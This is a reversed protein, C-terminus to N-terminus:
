QREYEGLKPYNFTTHVRREQYGGAKLFLTKERLAAHPHDAAFQSRWRLTSQDIIEFRLVHNDQPPAGLEKRHTVTVLVARPTGTDEKRACGGYTIEPYVVRDGGPFQYEVTGHYKAGKVFYACIKGVDVDKTDHEPNQTHAIGAFSLLMVLATVLTKILPRM